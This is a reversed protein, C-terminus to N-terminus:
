AAPLTAEIESLLEDLMGKMNAILTQFEKIALHRFVQREEPQAIRTDYWCTCGISVTVTGFVFSAMFPNREEELKVIQYLEHVWSMDPDPAQAARTLVDEIQGWTRATAAM